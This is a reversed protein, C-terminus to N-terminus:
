KRNSGKSNRLKTYAIIWALLFWFKFGVTSGVAFIFSESWAAIALNICMVMAFTFEKSIIISNFLIKKVIKGILLIIGTGLFICGWIGCEVLFSIYSNHFAMGPELPNYFNSVTYGVGFTQHQEWVQIAADWLDGRATGGESLLRNLATINLHIFRGDLLNYIFVGAVLLIVPLFPSYKFRIIITLLINLLLVIFATRSGSAISCIIASFILIFGIFEFFKKNTNRVVYLAAWYGLNAYVGLTNANTTIGLARGSDNNIGAVVFIVNLIQFILLVIILIKFCDNLSQKEKLSRFFIYCGYLIFIWSLYKVFATSKYDCLVISPLVAISFFLFLLPPFAIRGNSQIIAIIVLCGPFIWRLLHSGPINIYRANLSFYVWIMLFAFLIYIKNLKIKWM